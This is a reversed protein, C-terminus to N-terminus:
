DLPTQFFNRQFSKFKFSQKLCTKRRMILFGVCSDHRGAGGKVSVMEWRMHTSRTILILINLSPKNQHHNNHFTYVVDITLNRFKLRAFKSPKKSKQEFPGCISFKTKQFFNKDSFPFFDSLLRSFTEM